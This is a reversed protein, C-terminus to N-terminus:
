GEVFVCLEENIEMEIKSREERYLESLFNLKAAYNILNTTRLEGCEIARLREPFAALASILM